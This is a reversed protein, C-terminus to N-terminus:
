GYAAIIAHGESPGGILLMTQARARASGTLCLVSEQPELASGHAREVLYPGAILDRRM